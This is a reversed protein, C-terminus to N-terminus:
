GFDAAITEALRAFEKDVEWDPVSSLPRQPDNFTQIVALESLSFASYKIIVPILELGRNEWAAMLRPLEKTQIYNSDLFDPSVLLIAGDSCDIANRVEMEWASGAELGTRDIWLTFRGTRSLVSLSKQLRTAWGQDERAYSVFFQKPKAATGRSGDRTRDAVRTRPKEETFERDPAPDVGTKAATKPDSPGRDQADEHGQAYIAEGLKMSAQALTNTKAKIEEVDDGKLVELLNTIANNIARRDSKAIKSAHEALAM